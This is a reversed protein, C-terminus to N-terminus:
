ELYFFGGGYFGVVRGRVRKGGVWGLEEVLFFFEFM